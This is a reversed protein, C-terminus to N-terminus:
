LSESGDVRVGAISYSRREDAHADLGFRAEVDRMRVPAVHDRAAARRPVELRPLARRHLERDLAGACPLGNEWELQLEALTAPSQAPVRTGIFRSSLAQQRPELLPEIESPILSRTGRIADGRERFRSAHPCPVNRKPEGCRDARAHPERQEPRYRRCRLARQARLDRNGDRIALAGLRLQSEGDALGRPSEPEIGRPNAPRTQRRQRLLDEGPRSEVRTRVSVAVALEVRLVRLVRLVTSSPSQVKEM